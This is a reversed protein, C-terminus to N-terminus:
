VWFGIKDEDAEGNVAGVRELIDHVLHAKGDKTVGGEETMM